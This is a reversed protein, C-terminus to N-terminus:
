RDALGLERAQALVLPLGERIFPETGQNLSWRAVLLNRRFREYGIRRVARGSFHADFGAATVALLDADREDGTLRPDDAPPAFRNWPCAEQCLDCGFWWGEFRVALQRPIVGRHEITLYSICRETLVRRGSLAGTPCRKECATCSGCREGSEGGHHAALPAETLLTGLLRYSGQTPSILLGNRGLWGLGALHALTRENIPASDVTARSRWTAAHASALADGVRALKARLLHHYDKGAAYRARKLEGCGSEPQYAWATVLIARASPLLGAPDGRLHRDEGLWALDGVGDALMRVLHEGEDPLPPPSLVALARLGEVACAASVTAFPIASM